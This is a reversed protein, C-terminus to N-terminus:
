EKVFNVYEKIIDIGGLLEGEEEDETFYMMRYDCEVEVTIYDNNRHSYTILDEHKRVAKLPILSNEIIHANYYDSM